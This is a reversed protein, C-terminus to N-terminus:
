DHIKCIKISTENKGWLILTEKDQSLTGNKPTFDNLKEEGIFTINNNLNNYDFALISNNGSNLAYIKSLINNNNLNDYTIYYIFNVINEFHPLGNSESVYTKKEELTTSYSLDDGCLGAIIIRNKAGIILSKWNLAGAVFADNTEYELPSTARLLCTNYNPTNYAHSVYGTDSYFSISDQNPSMIGSSCHYTYDDPDKVMNIAYFSNNIKPDIDYERYSDGLHDFILFDQPRIFIHGFNRAYKHYTDDSFYKSLKNYNYDYISITNSTQESIFVRNRLYDIKMDIVNTLPMEASNNYTNLIEIENNVIRCIQLTKTLGCYSLIKNDPLFCIHMNNGVYFGNEGHNITKVVTPIYEPSNIKVEFEKYASSTSGIEGNSLIVDIRHYGIAPSLSCNEGSGILLGDLYWDISFENLPFNNNEVLKPYIKQNFPVVDNINEINCTIPVGAHNNLIILEDSTLLSSDENLKFNIIGSSTKNMVVRIAEVCGTLLVDGDYLKANLTYSGAKLVSELVALGNEYDISTPNVAIKENNQNILELILKPNNILLPNWNYNIEINGTGVLKNLEISASTPNKEINISTSGSVLLLGDSNKGVAVLDWNGITLGKITTKNERTTISFTDNKGPGQGTITYQTVELPIDEPLISKGRKINEQNVNLTLTSSYPKNDCSTIIITILLIIFIIVKNKKM